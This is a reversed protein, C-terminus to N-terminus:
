DLREYVGAPQSQWSPYAKWRGRGCSVCSFAWPLEQSGKRHAMVAGTDKCTMCGYTPTVDKVQHRSPVRAQPRTLEIEIM